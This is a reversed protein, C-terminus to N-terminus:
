GHKVGNNETSSEPNPVHPSEPKLDSPAKLTPPKLFLLWASLVTLLFVISWYPVLWYRVLAYGVFFNGFVYECNGFGCWRGTWEVDPSGFLTRDYPGSGPRSYWEPWVLHLPTEEDDPEGSTSLVRGFSGEVSVLGDSTGQLNKRILVEDVVLLSRMWAVMVACPIVLTVMGTKRRWGKFFGNM